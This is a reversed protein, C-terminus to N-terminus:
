HLAAQGHLRRWTQSPLEDYLERYDQAFLGLHWFGWQTAAEAVSRATKLARRAGALRVTRLFAAPALGTVQQFAAQLTRRSVGLAQCLTAVTHPTEPDDRVFAQARAVLQAARHPATPAHSGPLLALVNSMLAQQLLACAREDDLRAPLATILQLAGSLQEQLARLSAPDARHLGAQMALRLLGPRDEETALALLDSLPLDLGAMSLGEPTMFEFGDTGSFSCFHADRGPGEQWATHGCFSVPGWGLSLPVGLALRDSPRAGRQLLRRSTDEVFLHTQALRAEVFRGEFGGSSLQVYDQQWGQLLTAQEDVDRSSRQQLLPHPSPAHSM